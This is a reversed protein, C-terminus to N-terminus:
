YKECFLSLFCEARKRSTYTWAKLYWGKCLENYLFHREKEHLDKVRKRQKKAGLDKDNLEMHNCLFKTLEHYSKIYLGPPLELKTKTPVHGHSNSIPDM